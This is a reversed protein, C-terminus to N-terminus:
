KATVRLLTKHPQATEKTIDFQNKKFKPPAQILHQVDIYIMAVAIRKNARRDIAGIFIKKFKEHLYPKRLTFIKAYSGNPVNRFTQIQLFDTDTTSLLSFYIGTSPENKLSILRTFNLEKGVPLSANLSTSYTSM